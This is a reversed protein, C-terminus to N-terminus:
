VCKLIILFMFWMRERSRGRTRIRDRSSLFIYRKLRKFLIFRVYYCGSINIPGAPLSRRYSAVFVCINQVCLCPVEITGQLRNRSLCRLVCFATAAPLRVNCFRPRNQEPRTQIGARQVCSLARDTDIPLEPYSWLPLTMCLIAVETSQFTTADCDSRGKV